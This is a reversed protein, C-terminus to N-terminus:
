CETAYIIFRDNEFVTHFFESPTGGMCFDQFCKEAEVHSKIDWQQPGDYRQPIEIMLIPKREVRDWVYIEPFGQLAFELLESTSFTNM